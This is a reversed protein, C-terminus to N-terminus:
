SGWPDARKGLGARVTNVDKAMSKRETVNLQPGNALWDDLQSIPFGRTASVPVVRAVVRKGREIDFIQGKYQVQNLYDSFGRSFDTATVATTLALATM